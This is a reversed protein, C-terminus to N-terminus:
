NVLRHDAGSGLMTREDDLAETAGGGLRLIESRERDGPAEDSELLYALSLTPCAKPNDSRDKWQRCQGLTGEGAPRRGYVADADEDEHLDYARGREVLGRINLHVHAYGTFRPAVRTVIDNANVVRFHAIRRLALMNGLAEAFTNDGVRPSGYTYL